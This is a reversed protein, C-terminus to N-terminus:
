SASKAVKVRKRKRQMHKHRGRVKQLVQRKTGVGQQQAQRMVTLALNSAQRAWPQLPYWDTGASHVRVVFAGGDPVSAYSHRFFMWTFLLQLQHQHFPSDHQAQFPANMHHKTHLFYVEDFGVKLEVVIYRGQTDRCILDVATAARATPISVPVQMKFPEWQKAILLDLVRGTYEHITPPADQGFLACRQRWQKTSFQKRFGKKRQLRWGQRTTNREIFWKRVQSLGFQSKTQISRRKRQARLWLTVQSLEDEVLKGLQSGRVFSATDKSKAARPGWKAQKYSYQPFFLHQILPRVGTLVTPGIRFAKQKPDWTPICRIGRALSTPQPQVEVAAATAATAAAAVATAAVSTSRRKRKSGCVTQQMGEISLTM